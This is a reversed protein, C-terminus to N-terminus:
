SPVNPKCKSSIEDFLIDIGLTFVCCFFNESKKFKKNTFQAPWIDAPWAPGLFDFIFM